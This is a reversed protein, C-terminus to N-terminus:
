ARRVDIEWGESALRRLGRRIDSENVDIGLGALYDGLDACFDNLSDPDDRRRRNRTDDRDNERASRAPLARRGSSSSLEGAPRRDFEVDEIIPEDYQTPLSAGRAAAQMARATQVAAIQQGVIDQWSM